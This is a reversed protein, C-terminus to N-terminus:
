QRTTEKEKKFDNSGSRCSDAQTAELAWYALLMQSMSSMCHRSWDVSAAIRCFRPIESAPLSEGGPVMLRSLLSLGLLEPICQPKWYDPVSPIMYPLGGILEGPPQGGNRGSRYIFSRGRWDAVPAYMEADTIDALKKEVVDFTRDAMKAFRRMVDALKAKVDADPEVEWLLRHSVQAQYLAFSPLDFGYPVFDGGTMFFADDMYKMQEARWCDDGTVDWAAAFFMPLRFAEHACMLNDFYVLRAADKIHVVRRPNKVWMYGVDGPKGDSRLLTMEAKPDAMIRRLMKAIDVLMGRIEAKRREDAFRSGHYRWMSYIFLTYQDRSSNSYFSRGDLPSVGRALFGPVGSVTACNRLGTYVKELTDRAEDDKGGHAELRRLAAVLMPGGKLDCDELGTRWGNPNPFQLAMEEPTPMCAKYSVEGLRNSSIYDYLCGTGPDWLGTMLRRWSVEMAQEVSQEVPTLAGFSCTASLIGIWGTWMKSM